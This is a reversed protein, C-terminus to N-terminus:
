LQLFGWFPRTDHLFLVSFMMQLVYLIIISRWWCPASHSDSNPVECFPTCMKSDLFIVEKLSFGFFILIFATQLPFITLLCSLTFLVHHSYLEFMSKNFLGLLRCQLRGEYSPLYLCLYSPVDSHLTCLLNISNIIGPTKYALTTIHLQTSLNIKTLYTTLTQLISSLM